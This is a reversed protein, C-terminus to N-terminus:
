NKPYIRSDKSVINIEGRSTPRINSVTPTFAEFDHNKTVGLTDTSVHASRAM